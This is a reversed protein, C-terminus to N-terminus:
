RIKATMKNRLGETGSLLAKVSGILIKAEILIPIRNKDDTVWIFLDEGGKFITGEVLLASFKICNYVHGYKTELTDKGLYRIYLNFLENDIVASVPITDNVELGSFDLNRSYYVLSLVDFTCFPMDLTDRLFPKYTNETFSFIKNNRHDFLYQNNVEYGGEYTNRKFWLPQLTKMDLYSEFCDRVKFFLDYGKFTSGFSYLHYVDRKMFTTKKVEFEVWGANLWIFHWNYVVHYNVKEGVNFCYNTDFCQGNTVFVSFFLLFSVVVYCPAFNNKRIAMGTCM